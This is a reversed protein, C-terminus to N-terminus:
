QWQMWAVLSVGLLIFMGAALRKRFDTEKFLVRGGLISFLVSLRQVAVVEAPPLLQLAYLKSVMFAIELFGRIWCNGQHIRLAQLRDPRQVLFPFLFVASLLTMAFGAFVPTGKQVALRDFCTNLSFFFSASIALGIGKKQQAWSASSPRYVMLLSGGVVLLLALVGLPSPVDGTIVPATILLFLPSISFFSAVVSIDGHSFAYMKMGEAFSDTVSRLVVLSLFGFTLIFTEQGWLHLMTLVLLYYPLAFFFSAFTSVMGDLQLALRKSILDKASSLLASLFAATLSM